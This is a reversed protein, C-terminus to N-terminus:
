LGNSATFKGKDTKHFGIFNVLDIYKIIGVLDIYNWRNNLSKKELSVGKSILNSYADSYKQKALKDYSTKLSQLAKKM